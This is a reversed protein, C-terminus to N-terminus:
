QTVIIALLLWYYSESRLKSIDGLRGPRARSVRVVKGLVWGQVPWRYLHVAGGSCCGGAVQVRGTGTGDDSDGVGQQFRTASAGATGNHSISPEVGEPSNM